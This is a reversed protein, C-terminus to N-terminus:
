KRKIELWDPVPVFTITEWSDVEEESVNYCAQYATEVSGHTAKAWDLGLKKAVDQLEKESKGELEVFTPIWPWTDITVEVSNLDWRERKTEQYSKNDMGIALLLDCIKDFDDVVVSIEKTGEITRDVLQKYALTTKDGEDRARIWGGIKELRNDTHDFNKRRMMREEHVLTAGNKQLASRLANVDGNLFKAEIEIEM